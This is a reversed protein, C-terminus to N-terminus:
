VERAPWPADAPRLADLGPGDLAARLALAGMVILPNHLVGALVGAVLDDLAVWRLELDAEEHEGVVREGEAPRVDRALYVRVAEDSGGPSTYADLLVRWDGAQLHAEEALERRAAELPPEGAVDLLGAPFEWLRHRVPHRYQSLVLVRGEDDLALIGVSGPHVLVERAAVTDGPMGVQDIRVSWVRGHFATESGHVPWAEPTDAQQLDETVSGALPVRHHETV